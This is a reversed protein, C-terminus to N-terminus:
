VPIVPCSSTPLTQFVSDERFIISLMNYVSFVFFFIKLPSSLPPFYLRVKYKVIVVKYRWITVKYRLFSKNFWLTLIYKVAAIKEQLQSKIDLYQIDRLTLIYQIEYNIKKWTITVKYRTIISYIEWHSYISYKMIFFIWAITVKYRTIISYIRYKMIKKKEHM